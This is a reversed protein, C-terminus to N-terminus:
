VSSFVGEPLAPPGQSAPAGDRPGPINGVRRKVPMGVRAWESFWTWVCAVLFAWTRADAATWTQTNELEVM